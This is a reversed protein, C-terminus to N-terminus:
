HTVALPESPQDEVVGHQAFKVIQVVLGGSDKLTNDVASLRPHLYPAADKAIDCAKARAEDTDEDWYSRMQTLMVELPTIGDAAAEEAIKLRNITKQAPVGPKRGAGPRRGGRAM